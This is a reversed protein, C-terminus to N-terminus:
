STPGGSKRVPARVPARGATGGAEHGVATTLNIELKGSAVDQLKGEPLERIQQEFQSVLTEILRNRDM